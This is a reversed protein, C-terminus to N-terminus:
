HMWVALAVFSIQFTIFIIGGDLKEASNKKKAAATATATVMGGGLTVTGIVTIATGSPELSLIDGGVTVQGGPTLTEGAIVVNTQLRDSPVVGTLFTTPAPSPLTIIEGGVTIASGPYLTQSSILFGGSSDATITSGDVVVVSPTPTPEPTYGNVVIGGGSAVSV